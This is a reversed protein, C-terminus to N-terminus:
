QDLHYEGIIDIEKTISLNFKEKVTQECLSVLGLYETATAGGRNVIFNAHKTSIMAGGLSTGKLNAKDIYYGASEGSSTRKFVSGLSPETPQRSLRIARYRSIELSLNDKSPTLNLTAGVVIKDKFFNSSSRYSYPLDPRDVVRESLSPLDLYNVSLLLDAIELGFSGANKVVAGGVSGPIGSLQELGKLGCSACKHALYPLRLGSEVYLQNGRVTFKNLKSLDVLAGRFGQDTILTNTGAGIPIFPVNYANLLSLADILKSTSNPKIILDVVGGCKVSSLTSGSVNVISEVGLDKLASVIM